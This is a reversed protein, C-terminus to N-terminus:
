WARSAREPPGPGPPTVAEFPGADGGWREPPGVRPYEGDALIRTVDPIEFLSALLRATELLVPKGQAINFLTGRTVKADRKGGRLARRDQQIDGGVTRHLM